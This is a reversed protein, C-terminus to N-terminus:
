VADSCLDRDRPMRSFAHRSINLALVLFRADVCCRARRSEDGSTNLRARLDTVPTCSARSMLACHRIRQLFRDTFRSAPYATILSVDHRSRTHLECLKGHLISSRTSSPPLSFPLSTCPTM